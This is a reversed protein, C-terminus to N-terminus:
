IIKFGVINPTINYSPLDKLSINSPVPQRIVTLFIYHLPYYLETISSNTVAYERLSPFLLDSFEFFKWYYNRIINYELFFM